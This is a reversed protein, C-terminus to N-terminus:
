RTKEETQEEREINSKEYDKEKIVHDTCGKLRGNQSVENEFKKHASEEIVAILEVDDSKVINGTFFEKLRRLLSKKKTQQEKNSEVVKQPANYARQITEKTRQPESRNNSKYKSVEEGNMFKVDEGIETEEMNINLNMDKTDIDNLIESKGAFKTKKLNIDVNGNGRVSMGNLMKAEGTVKVGSMDINVGM